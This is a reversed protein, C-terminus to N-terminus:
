PSPTTRKRPRPAPPTPLLLREEFQRIFEALPIGLAQCYEHLESLDMRRNGREYDTIRAQNAELKEALELQTLRAHVRLERILAIFHM